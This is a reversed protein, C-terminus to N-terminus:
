WQIKTQLFELNLVYIMLTMKSDSMSKEFDESLYIKITINRNMENFVANKRDIGICVIYM